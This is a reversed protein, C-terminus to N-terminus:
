FWNCGVPFAQMQTRWIGPTLGTPDINKIFTVEIESIYESPELDYIEEPIFTYSFYRSEINYLPLFNSESINFMQNQPSNEYTNGLNTNIRLHISIDGDM